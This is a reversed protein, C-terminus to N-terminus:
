IVLTARKNSCLHLTERMVELNNDIKESEQKSFYSIVTKLVKDSGMNDLKSHIEGRMNKIQSELERYNDSMSVNFELISKEVEKELDKFFRDILCLVREKAEAMKRRVEKEDISRQDAQDKIEEAFNDLEKLNSELNGTIDSVVQNM